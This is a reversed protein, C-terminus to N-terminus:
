LAVSFCLFEARILADFWDIFFKMVLRYPGVLTSQLAAAASPVQANWVTFCWCDNRVLSQVEPRKLTIKWSESTAFFNAEALVFVALM